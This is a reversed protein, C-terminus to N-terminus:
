YMMEDLRTITLGQTTPYGLIQTIFLEKIKLFHHEFSLLSKGTDLKQLRPSGATSPTPICRGGGKQEQLLWATTEEMQTKFIWGDEKKTRL